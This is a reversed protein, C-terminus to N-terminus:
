FRPYTRFPLVVRLPLASSVHSTPFLSSIPASLRYKRAFNKTSLRCHRCHSPPFRFSLSQCSGALSVRLHKSKLGVFWCVAQAIRYAYVFRKYDVVVLMMEYKPGSILWILYHLIWCQIFLFPPVKLRPFCPIKTEKTCYSRFKFM